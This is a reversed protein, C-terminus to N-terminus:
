EQCVQAGSGQNSDDRQLLYIGRWEADEFKGFSNAFLFIYINKVYQNIYLNILVIRIDLVICEGPLDHL